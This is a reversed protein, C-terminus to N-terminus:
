FSALVTNLPLANGLEVINVEEGIKLMASGNHVLNQGFFIKNNAKRYGALTKLPEASLQATNQDVGIMVCRACPKVGYFDIGAATFHKIRDEIYPETGAIVINPRFQEMPVQKTLKTNLHNLSAESILLMPYADAFSTIHDPSAYKPDVPRLDGDGMYVLRCEFELINGFWQDLDRSVTNANCEDDWIKVTLQENIQPEFPITVQVGTPEHLVEIGNNRLQLKFFAMQPFKRQSLFQNDADILMWRRDYQLGRSTVQSQTLAIGGLSKVPYVYLQSIYPM